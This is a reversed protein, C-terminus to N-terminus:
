SGGLGRLAAVASAGAMYSTRPNQPSPLSRVVVELSALPGSAEILHSVAEAAPDSVVVVETALPGLGALSLSVAVNVNAPFGLVADRACGTFVTVARDDPLEIGNSELHPAGRLGAPKKTTTIRSNDLGGVAALARVGDLGAIGGSPLVVKVDGRALYAAHVQEDILAGISMVVTNVGAAWLAPVHRRVAGGGAAELVWTAGCSALGEPAVVEAGLREALSRASDSNASSGAVAVVDVDPLQGALVASAVVEGIGGAGLLALPVRAV